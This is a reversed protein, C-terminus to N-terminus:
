LQQQCWSLVMDHIWLADDPNNETAAAAAPTTACDSPIIDNMMSEWELLVFKRHLVSWQDNPVTKLDVPKLKQLKMLFEEEGGQLGRALKHVSSLLCDGEIQATVTGVSLQESSPMVITPVPERLHGSLNSNNINNWGQTGATRFGGDAPVGPGYLGIEYKHTANV